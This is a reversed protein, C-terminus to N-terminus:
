RYTGVHVQTFDMEWCVQGTGRFEQVQLQTFIGTGAVRSWDVPRRYRNKLQICTRLIRFCEVSRRYGYKLSIGTVAVQDM